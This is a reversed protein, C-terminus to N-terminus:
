IINSWVQWTRGKIAQLKFSSERFFIGLVNMATRDKEIQNVEAVDTSESHRMMSYVGTSSEDRGNDHSALWSDDELSPRAALADGSQTCGM